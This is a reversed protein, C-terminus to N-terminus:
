AVTVTTVRAAGATQGADVARAEPNDLRGRLRIDESSAGIMVEVSGPLIQWGDRWIAFHEPELTFTVRRADGSTIAVRAFGRLEKVPRAMGAVPARIYLQVVEDADRASTNTITASITWALSRGNGQPVVNLDSYDFEAYSLGHGFPFLPGIETDHYRASDKSLDPNAPRGTPPHAYYQPVQGTNRPMGMPLRGAPSAKGFLVDAIAPGSENGLFWTELVAPIGDLVEELALPRGNM